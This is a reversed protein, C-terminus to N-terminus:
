FNMHEWVLYILLISSALWGYHFMMLSVHVEKLKRTLVNALSWTWSTIVICVVGIAYKQQDYLVDKGAEDNKCMTLLIVGVFCGIMCMIDIKQVDTNNIYYGLIATWFPTMGFIIAAISIPIYFVGIVLTTFGILGAVSRVFLLFRCDSPLDGLPRKKAVIMTFIAIMFNVFTRMLCLDIVNVGSKMSIKAM